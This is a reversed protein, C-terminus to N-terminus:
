RAQEAETLARFLQGPLGGEGRIYVRNQRLADKFRKRTTKKVEKFM